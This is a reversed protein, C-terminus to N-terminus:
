TYGKSDCLKYVKVRFKKMKKPIYQRFPMREEQKMIVEDVAM